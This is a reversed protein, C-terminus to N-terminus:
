FAPLKLGMARGIYVKLAITRALAAIFTASATGVPGFRPTLILALMLNLAASLGIIWAAEKEHATM